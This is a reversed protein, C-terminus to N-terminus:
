DGKRALDFILWFYFNMGNSISTPIKNEVLWEHLTSSSNIAQGVICIAKRYELEDIEKSTYCLEFLINCMFSYNPDGAYESYALTLVKSTRM